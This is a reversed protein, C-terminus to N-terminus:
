KFILLVRRALQVYLDLKDALTMTPLVSIASAECFESVIYVELDEKYVGFFEVLNPHSLNGLENGMEWWFEDEQARNLKKLAVKNGQSM